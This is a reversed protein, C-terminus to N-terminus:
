KNKCAQNQLNKINRKPSVALWFFSSYFLLDNEKTKKDICTSNYLLYNDWHYRSVVPGVAKVDGTPGVAVPAVNSLRKPKSPPHAVSTGWFFYTAHLHCCIFLHVVKIFTFCFPLLVWCAGSVFIIKHKKM